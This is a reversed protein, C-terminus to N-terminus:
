CWELLLGEKSAAMCGTWAMCREARETEAGETCVLVSAWLFLDVLVGQAQHRRDGVGLLPNSNRFGVVEILAGISLEAFREAVSLAEIQVTKRRTGLKFSVDYSRLRAFCKQARLQLGSDIGLLRFGLKLLRFGM